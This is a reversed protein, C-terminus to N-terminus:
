IGADVKRSDDDELSMWLDGRIGFQDISGLPAMPLFVM